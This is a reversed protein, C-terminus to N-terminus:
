ELFSQYIWELFSVVTMVAFYIGFLMIVISLDMLIIHIQKFIVLMLITLAAYLLTKM